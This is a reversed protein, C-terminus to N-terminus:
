LSSDKIRQLATAQGLAYGYACEIVEFDRDKTADGGHRYSFGMGTDADIVLEYAVLLNRVGPAPEIPATAVLIASPVAVFGALQESNTPIRTNRYTDFNLIKGVTATDKSESSGRRDADAVRGDKLLAATWSANLFLARGSEPWDTLGSEIDVLDDYDFAAATGTHAVTTYNAATVVSLIDAVVGRGLEESAMMLHKEPMFAPQRRLTSSAYDFLKYPRKNLTITRTNVTTNTYTTYGTGEVFATAATTDLPYFPVDVTDNGQLAVDNFRTSFAGLPALIRKFESLAETLVLTRSLGADITNTSVALAELKKRNANVIRNIGKAADSMERSSVNERRSYADFSKKLGTIGKISNRVDEAIVEVPASAHDPPTPRMSDLEDRIGDPDSIARSIWKSRVANSIRRSAIAGDVIEEARTRKYTADKAELDRLRSQLEDLKANAAKDEMPAAPAAPAVPALKELEAVLVDSTANPDVTVGRAQLMTLIAARLAADDAADDLVVGLKKLKALVAQKNMKNGNNATGGRETKRALAMVDSRTPRQNRITESAKMTAQAPAAVDTSTTSDALGWEVAEAGTFKTNARLADAIEDPTKGTKEVYAAIIAQEKKDLWDAMDRFEDANGEFGGWPKHILLTCTEPAIVKGAGLMLVTAISCAAGTIEVTADARRDKLAAYMGLGADVSGGDSNLLIRFATGRPISNLAERFSSEEIGGGDWWNAGISGIVEISPVGSADNKVKFRNM